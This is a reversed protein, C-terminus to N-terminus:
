TFRAILQQETLGTAQCVLSTDLVPSREALLLTLRRETTNSRHDMVGAYSLATYPGMIYGNTRFASGITGKLREDGIVAATMGERLTNLMGPRPEYMGGEQCIGAFRKAEAPSLASCILRELEQPLATDALPTATNETAAGTYLEGQCLLDWVGSNDNCSCIIDGFPLGMKRLYWAAMVMSFDGSVLSIDIKKQIDTTEKRVLQAWVGTLVAIRIAVRVWGDAKTDKGSVRQALTQELHDFSHELNHWLEGIVMRGRLPVTKVAHRGIAFEVDWGSLNGSFFTNLVDAVCQGFSAKTLEELTKADWQPLRFPLYRGGDPAYADRIAHSVTYADFANRTSVYLM